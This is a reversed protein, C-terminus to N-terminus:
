KKDLVKNKNETEVSDYAFTLIGQVEKGGRISELM